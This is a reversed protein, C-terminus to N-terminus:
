HKDPASYVCESLMSLGFLIDCNYLIHQLMHLAIMYLFKSSVDQKQRLGVQNESTFVHVLM